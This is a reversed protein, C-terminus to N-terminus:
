KVRGEISTIVVKSKFAAGVGVQMVPFRSVGFEKVFGDNVFFQMRGGERKLTLKSGKSWDHHKLASPLQERDAIRDESVAHPVALGGGSRVRDRSLSYTVNGEEWVNFFVHVSEADTGGGTLDFYLSASPHRERIQFRVDFVFDSELPPIEILRGPGIWTNSSPEMVYSNGFDLKVSGHNSDLKPWTSFDASYARRTGGPFDSTPQAPVPAASPSPASPTEPKPPIQPEEGIPNTPTSKPEKGSEKVLFFIAGAVVIFVLTILVRNKFAQVIKSKQTVRTKPDTPKLEVLETKFDIAGAAQDTERIHKPSPGLISEIAEVLKEFEPSDLNGTWSILNAAQIQGFGIPPRVDDIRAPVLMRNIKGRDAEEIVWESNISKESWLVLICKTDDLGEKIFQRWTKGVPISTWDWFLSWGHEKLAKVIPTIRGRDDSSYSIFIDAM